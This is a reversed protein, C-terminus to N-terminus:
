DNFEFLSFQAATAISKEIAIFLRRVNIRDFASPKALLTKDGFLITGQGPFSVVPNIGNVYLDDRETASPNFALNVVNKINGRTFGAPSIFPNINDSQACLGAIDGNLPVYRFVGNFRDLQYKYNGDMTAYSTSPLVNRKAIAAKIFQYLLFISILSYYHCIM